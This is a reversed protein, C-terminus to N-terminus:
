WLFIYLAPPTLNATKKGINIYPPFFNRGKKKIHTNRRTYQPHISNDRLSEKKNRRGGWSSLEVSGKQSKEINIKKM